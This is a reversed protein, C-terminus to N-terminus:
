RHFRWYSPVSDRAVSPESTKSSSLFSVVLVTGTLKRTLYRWVDGVCAVTRSRRHCQGVVVARVEVGQEQYDSRGEFQTVHNSVLPLAFSRPRFLIVRSIHNKLSHLSKSV